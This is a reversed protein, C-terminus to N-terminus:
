RALVLKKTLHLDGFDLRVVYVGSPMSRGYRDRGDWEEEHRGAPLIGQSLMRVLRGSVDYIAVSVRGTQPVNIAVSVYPNFPNPHADVTAVLRPNLDSDPNAVVSKAARAWVLDIEYEVDMLGFHGSPESAYYSDRPAETRVAGLGAGAGVSLVGDSSPLEVAVYLVRETQM